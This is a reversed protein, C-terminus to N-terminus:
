VCCMCTRGPGRATDLMEAAMSQYRAATALVVGEAIEKRPESRLDAAAPDDLFASLPALIGAVYHSPRTPLPRRRAISRLLTKTTRIGALAGYRTLLASQAPTAVLLLIVDASYRNVMRHTTSIARMQKLVAICKEAIGDTAVAALAQGSTQAAAAGADLAHQIAEGGQRASLM